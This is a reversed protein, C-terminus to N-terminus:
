LLYLSIIMVGDTLDCTTSRTDVDQPVETPFKFYLAICDRAACRRATRGFRRNGATVWAWKGDHNSWSLIWIRREQCHVLCAGFWYWNGRVGRRGEGDGMQGLTM